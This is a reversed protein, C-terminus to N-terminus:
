PSGPSDHPDSALSPCDLCPLLTHPFLCPKSPSLLLATVPDGPLLHPHQRQFHPGPPTTLFANQPGHTPPHPSRYPKSFNSCVRLVTGAKPGARQPLTWGPRCRGLFLSSPLPAEPRATGTPGAWHKVWARLQLGRPQWVGPLPQAWTGAM